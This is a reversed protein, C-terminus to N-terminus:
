SWKRIKDYLKRLPLVEIFSMFEVVAGETIFSVAFTIGKLIM